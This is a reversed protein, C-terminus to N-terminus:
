TCHNLANVTFRSTILEFGVSARLFLIKGFSKLVYKSALYQLIQFNKDPLLIKILVRVSKDVSSLAILQVVSSMVTLQVVSSVVILQVESSALFLEFVSPMVNLQVVSSIVILQVFSSM